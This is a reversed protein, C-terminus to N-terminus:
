SSGGVKEEFYPKLVTVVKRGLVTTADAPSKYEETHTAHHTLTNYLAFLNPGMDHKHTAWSELLTQVAHARGSTLILERDEKNLPRKGLYELILDEATEQPIKIGQMKLWRKGMDKFADIAHSLYEAMHGIDFSPTHRNSVATMYDGWVQGNACAVRFGGIDLVQKWSGDYSNRSLVQLETIDGKATEFHHEPLTIKVLNRAGTVSQSHYVKIGKLKLDSEVLSNALKSLLESNQIVHYRNGVTSIYQGDDAFRLAKKDPIIGGEKTYLNAEEVPRLLGQSEFQEMIHNYMRANTAKQTSM